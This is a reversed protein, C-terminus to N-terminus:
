IYNLKINPYKKLYQNLLNKTKNDIEKFIDIVIIYKGINNIVGIVREEFEDKNEFLWDLPDKTNNKSKSKYYKDDVPFIKYNNSLKNGDITFRTFVKDKHLHQPISDFNKSRSFSLQDDKRNGIKDNELNFIFSDRDMLHYLVGVQKGENLIDILKIM